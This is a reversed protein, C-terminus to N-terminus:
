LSDRVEQYCYRCCVTGNEKGMESIHVPTGCNPCEGYEDEKNEEEM